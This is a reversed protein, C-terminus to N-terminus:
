VGIPERALNVANVFEVGPQAADDQELAHLNVNQLVAREVQGIVEQSPQINDHAGDMVAEVQCALLLGLPQQAGHVLGAEADQGVRGPPEDVLSGGAVDVQRAHHALGALAAAEQFEVRM